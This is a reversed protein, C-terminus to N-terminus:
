KSNPLLIDQLGTGKETRVSHNQSLSLPVSGYESFPGCEWRGSAMLAFIPPIFTFSSGQVIPLRRLFSTLNLSRFARFTLTLLCFASELAWYTAGPSLQANPAPMPTSMLACTLTTDSHFYLRVVSVSVGHGHTKLRVLPGADLYCEGM